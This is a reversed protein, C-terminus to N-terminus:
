AVDFYVDLQEFRTLEAAEVTMDRPFPAANDDDTTRRVRLIKDPQSAVQRGVIHAACKAAVADMDDARDVDFLRIHCDYQFRCLIPTSNM